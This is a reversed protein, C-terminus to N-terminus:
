GAFAVGDRVVRIQEVFPHTPASLALPRNDPPPAHPISALLPLDLQAALENASRVGRESRGLVLAAGAGILLGLVGALAIARLPEPRVPTGAASASRIVAAGGDQLALDIDLEALRGVLKGQQASLSAQLEVLAPRAADDAPLTALEDTVSALREAIADANAQVEARATALDRLATSASVEIYAAAYADALHRATTPDAAEVRLVVVDTAGVVSAAVPPADAGILEGVRDRVATGTMVQVASRVARDATAASVASISFASDPATDVLLRTEARYVPAQLAVMLGSGAVAAVAAAVPLW